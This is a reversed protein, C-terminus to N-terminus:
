KFSSNWVEKRILNPILEKVSVQRLEGLISINDEIVCIIPGSGRRDM